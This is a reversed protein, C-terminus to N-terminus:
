PMSWTWSVIMATLPWGNFPSRTACAIFASLSGEYSSVTALDVAVCWAAATRYQQRAAGRVGRSSEPVLLAVLLGATWVGGVFGLVLM